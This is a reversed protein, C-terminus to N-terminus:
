PRVLPPLTSLDLGVCAEGLTSGDAWTVPGCGCDAALVYWYGSTDRLSLTGSVAGDCQGSNAQVGALHVAETGDTMGGEVSVSWAPDAREVTLQLVGGAGDPQMWGPGGAYSWTGSVDGVWTVTGASRTVELELEGGGIFWRGAADRVNFDGLLHFDDVIPVEPPGSYEALGAYLWGSEATCGEFRGPLNTGQGGPCGPDRHAFIGLYTERALLPEPLGSATARDIAAAVGAADLSPAPVEPRVEATATDQEAADGSGGTGHGPDKGAPSQSGACALLIAVLPSVRWV